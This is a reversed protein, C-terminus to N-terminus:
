GKTKATPGHGHVDHYWRGAIRKAKGSPVGKSRLHRYLNTWPHATGVWKARGAGHKWYQELNNRGGAAKDVGGFDWGDWDLDEVGEVDIVPILGCRCRPHGPPHRHGSPFREGLPTPGALENAGCRPCVRQDNATMWENASLGLEEYRAQAAASQARNTETWAVTMARKPDTIVGTLAAAIERPTAGSELGDALVAVVEDLRTGFIAQADLDVDALLATLFETSGDASLLRRAAAPDGPEFRSWDVALEVGARRVDPEQHEEIWDVVASASLRGVAAAVTRADRLVPALKAAAAKVDVQQQVWTRVDPRPDDPTRPRLPAAWELFRAALVVIGFPAGFAASFAASVAAAWLQAVATDILWAPWRGDPPVPPPADPQTM